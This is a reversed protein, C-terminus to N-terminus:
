RGKPRKRDRFEDIIEEKIWVALDVGARFFLWLVCIGAMLLLISIWSFRVALLIASMVPMELNPM